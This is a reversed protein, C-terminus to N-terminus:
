HNRGTKLSQYEWAIRQGCHPCHDYEEGDLEYTWGCNPCSWSDYVPMGDAYVDGWIDPNMPKQKKLAQLAMEMAPDWCDVCSSQLFKKRSVLEQIAEEITM